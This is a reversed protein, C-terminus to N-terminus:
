NEKTSNDCISIEMQLEAFKRIHRGFQLSFSTNGLLCIELPNELTYKLFSSEEGDRIVWRKFVILFMGLDAILTLM